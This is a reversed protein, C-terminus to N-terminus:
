LVSGWAAACTWAPGEPALAPSDVITELSHSMLPKQQSMLVIFDAEIGRSDWRVMRITHRNMVLVCKPAYRLAFQSVAALELGRGREAVAVDPESTQLWGVTRMGATEPVVDLGGCLKRHAAEEVELWCRGSTVVHFMLCGTMAPLALAWPATFESRCYFTGSMRLFHLAEGLPDVPTWPDNM